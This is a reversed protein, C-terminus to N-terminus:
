FEDSVHVSGFGSLWTSRVQPPNDFQLQNNSAIYGTRGESDKLVGNNLTLVLSGQRQKELTMLEKLFM